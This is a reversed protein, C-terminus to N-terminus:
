DIVMRWKKRGSADEKKPVIWVPSSYPSNSPQIIEDNLLRRIQLLRLYNKIKMTSATKPSRACNHLKIERKKM